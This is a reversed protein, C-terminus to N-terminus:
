LQLKGDKLVGKVVGSMRRYSSSRQLTMNTDSYVSLRLRRRNSGGGAAASGQRRGLRADSRGVGAAYPRGLPAVPGRANDKYLARRQLM